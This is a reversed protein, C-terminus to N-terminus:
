ENKDGLRIHAGPKVFQGKKPTVAWPDGQPMVPKQGSVPAAGDIMIGGAPMSTNTGSPIATLTIKPPNTTLLPVAEVKVGVQPVTVAGVEELAEPVTWDGKRDALEIQLATELM